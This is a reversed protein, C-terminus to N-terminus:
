RRSAVGLSHGPVQPTVTPQMAFVQHAAPAPSAFGTPPSAVPVLPMSVATTGPRIAYSYYHPTCGTKRCPCERGEAGSARKAPAEDYLHEKKMADYAEGLYDRPPVAAPTAPHPVTSPEFSPSTAKPSAIEPVEVPAAQAAEATAPMELVPPPASTRTRALAVGGLLTTGIGAVLLAPAVWRPRGSAPRLHSRARRCLVCEGGPGVALDHEACRERAM